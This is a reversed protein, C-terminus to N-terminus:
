HGNHPDPHSDDGEREAEERIHVHVSRGFFIVPIHYGELVVITKRHGNYEISHVQEPCIEDNFDAQLGDALFTNFIDM